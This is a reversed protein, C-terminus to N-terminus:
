PVRAPIRDWRTKTVFGTVLSALAEPSFRNSLIETPADFSWYIALPKGFINERPVLGWFRSDSSNDRNDGLVFYRGEPVVLAGDQVHKALMHRGRDEIWVRRKLLFTM